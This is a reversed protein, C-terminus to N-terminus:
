YWRPCVGAQQIGVMFVSVQISTLRGVLKYDNFLSQSMPRSAQAHSVHRANFHGLWPFRFGSICLDRHLHFVACCTEGHLQVM